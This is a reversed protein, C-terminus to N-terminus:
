YKGGGVMFQIKRDFSLIASNVILVRIVTFIVLVLIKDLYLLNFQLGQEEPSTRESGIPSFTRPCDNSNIQLKSFDSMLEMELDDNPVDQYGAIGGKIDNVFSIEPANIEPLDSSTTMDTATSSQESLFHQFM